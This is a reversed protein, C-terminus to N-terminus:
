YFTGAQDFSASNARRKAYRRWEALLKQHTESGAWRSVGGPDPPISPNCNPPKEFTALQGVVSSSRWSSLGSSWRHSVLSPHDKPPTSPRKGANEPGAEAAKRNAGTRACSSPALELRWSALHRTGFLACAWVARSKDQGCRPEVSSRSYVVAERVERKALTIPINVAHRLSMSGDAEYIKGTRRRGTSRDKEVLSGCGRVELAITRQLLTRRGGACEFLCIKQRAVATGTSTDLNAGNPTNEVRIDLSRLIVPLCPWCARGCDGVAPGPPGPSGSPGCRFPPPLVRVGIVTPCTKRASPRESRVGRSSSLGDLKRASNLRSGNPSVNASAKYSLGKYRRPM